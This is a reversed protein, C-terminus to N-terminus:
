VDENPHRSCAGDYRERYSRRCGRSGKGAALSRRPKLVAAAVDEGGSVAGAM